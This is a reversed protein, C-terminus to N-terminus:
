PTSCHRGARIGADVKRLRARLKEAEDKLHKLQTEARKQNQEVFVKVVREPDEAELAAVPATPPLPGPQAVDKALDTAVSATNPGPTLPPAKPHAAQKSPPTALDPPIAMAIPPKETKLKETKLSAAARSAAVPAITRQSKQALSIRAVWGFLILGAVLGGLVLTGAISSIIPVHVETHWLDLAPGLRGQPVSYRKEDCRFLSNHRRPSTEM